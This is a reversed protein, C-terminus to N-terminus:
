VNTPYQIRYRTYLAIKFRKNMRMQRSNHSQVSDWSLIAGAASAGIPQQGATNIRLNSETATVDTVEQNPREHKPALPLLQPPLAPQALATASGVVTRITVIANRPRRERLFTNRVGLNRVHV